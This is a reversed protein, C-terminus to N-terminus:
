SGIRSPRFSTTDVKSVLAQALGELRRRPRSLDLCNIMRGHQALGNLCFTIWPPDICSRFTKRSAAIAAAMTPAQGAKAADAVPAASM